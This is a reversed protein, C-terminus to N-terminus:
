CGSTKSLPNIRWVDGRGCIASQQYPASIELRRTRYFFPVARGNQMVQAAKHQGVVLFDDVQQLSWVQGETNPVLQFAVEGTPGRKGWDAAFLGQNTGLYLKDQYYAAAYGTGEIGSESRVYSFPPNLEVYDLGNDM